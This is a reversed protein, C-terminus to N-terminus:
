CRVGSKLSLAQLPHEAAADFQQELM